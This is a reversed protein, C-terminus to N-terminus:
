VSQAGVSGSVAAGTSSIEYVWDASIAWVNGHLDVALSKGVTNLTIVSSPNLTYGTSSSIASGNPAFKSVAKGADLVWVYGQADIAVSQMYAIGGGNFKLILSYDTPAYALAPTFVQTAADAFIASVNSGPHHALNIAATATEPPVAGTTTGDATLVSLLSNCSAPTEVCGALANALTNVRTQPVTGNGAPTTALAAGSSLTALNAANAFANAVGTQALATGSSSIHTADTAFGALAYATAVTTVENITATTSTGAAPCVGLAAMMGSAANGAGSMAGGIALLYLQQQSTCTYAGTLTFSGNSGSLVYGGVADSHGTVASNLLSVSAQGYGGTGAALLYVHAGAVPKSSSVVGTIAGVPQTITYAAMAASSNAYGTAVAIAEITESASVAISGTYAISSTTPASGNTTYYITAGPTADTITVLQTSTYSGAAVSFTPTAATLSIVYAASAVTSNSMGTAIAIAQITESSSVTIPGTYLTSSASPMTGNTTYFIQAGGTTDSLSVSQVSSYAGGAV